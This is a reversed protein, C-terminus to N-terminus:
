RRLKGPRQIYDLPASAAFQEVYWAHPLLLRNERALVHFDGPGGASWFRGVPIITQVQFFKEKCMQRVTIRM